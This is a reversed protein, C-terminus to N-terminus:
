SWARRQPRDGLDGRRYLGGPQGHARQAMREQRIWDHRRGPQAPAPVACPLAAADEFPGLDIPEIISAISPGPWRIADAHLDIDLVRLECRNALDDPTPLVRVAGRFTGLGSEIAPVKAIVDHITQGRALRFRAHWGWLDVMASMVQSGALGVAKAIEPWSELMREVRVKARRRRSAWWPLACILTLGAALAPMPPRAPGLTTATTLWGGTAAAVAAAYVREAPRELVFWAKRLRAPAPIALVTTGAMTAVALWRWWEPHTRHLSMAALVTVAAFVVPALESRYRWLTRGIAAAATEPLQDGSNLLMMPQFGDRRLQRAHRRLQRRSPRTTM